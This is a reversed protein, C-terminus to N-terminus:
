SNFDQTDSMSPTRIASKFWQAIAACFIIYAIQRVASGIMAVIPGVTESIPFFSLLVFVSFDAGMLAFAIKVSKKPISFAFIFCYIAVIAQFVKDSISWYNMRVHTPGPFHGRFVQHISQALLLGCLVFLAAMWLKTERGNRITMGFVHVPRADSEASM